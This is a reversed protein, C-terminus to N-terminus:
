TANTDDTTNNRRVAAVGAVLGTAGVAVLVTSWVIRADVNLDVYAAVALIAAAALTLIGAVLSFLDLDHRRM